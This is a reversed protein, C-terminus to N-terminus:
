RPAPGGVPVVALLLDISVPTGRAVTPRTELQPASGGVPLVVALLLEISGGLTGRASFGYKRERNYWIICM